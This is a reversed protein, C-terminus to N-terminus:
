FQRPPPPPRTIKKGRSTSNKCFITLIALFPYGLVHTNKPKRASPPDLWCVGGQPMKHAANKAMKPWKQGNKVMKQGSKSWKKAMKPWKQGNKVM